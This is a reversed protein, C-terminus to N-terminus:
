GSQQNRSQLQFAARLIGVVSKADRLEGNLAMKVLDDLLYPQLDIIEDGDQPLPDSQLGTALFIAMIENSLGPAPWCAGLSQFHEARYGTEERLERQACDLWNEEWGRTGAPLEVISEDLALRYQRLMIVEPGAATDRLPVLVVAGPHEIAGKEITSGDPLPITHIRLRWSDSEWAIQSRSGSTSM